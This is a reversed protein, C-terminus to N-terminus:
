KGWLIQFLTCNMVLCFRHLNTAWREFHANSGAEIAEYEEHSLLAKSEAVDEQAEPSTTLRGHDAKRNFALPVGSVDTINATAEEVTKGVKERIERIRQGVKGPQPKEAAPPTAAQSEVPDEAQLVPERATGSSRRAAANVAALSVVSGDLFTAVPVNLNVALRVLVAGWKEVPFSMGNEIDIYASENTLGLAGAAEGISKEAQLRVGKMRYVIFIDM